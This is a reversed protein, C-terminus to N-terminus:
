AAKWWQTTATTDRVINVVGNQALTISIAGEYNQGTAAVLTTTNASVNKITMMSGAAHAASSPLTMSVASGPNLLLVRNGNPLQGTTITSTAVPTLYELSIIAWTGPYGAAICVWGYAQGVATPANNLFIDGLNYYQTTDSPVAAAYGLQPM